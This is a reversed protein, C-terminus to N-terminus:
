ARSGRFLEWGRQQANYDNPSSRGKSNNHVSCMVQWNAPFFPEATPDRQDIEADRWGHHMEAVHCGCDLVGTGWKSKFWAMVAEVDLGYRQRYM